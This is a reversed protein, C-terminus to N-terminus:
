GSAKRKKWVRLAAEARTGVSGLNEDEAIAKLVVAARESEGHYLLYSATSCRIVPNDDDLLPMLVDKVIHQEAWGSVLADTAVVHKNARAASPSDSTLIAHRQRVHETFEARAQTLEETANV